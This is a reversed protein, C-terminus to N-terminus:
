QLFRRLVVPVKGPKWSSSGPSFTDGTPCKWTVMSTKKIHWQDLKGTRWPSKTGLNTGSNLERTWNNSFSKPWACLVEKVGYRFGAQEVRFCVVVMNSTLFEIVYMLFLVFRSDQWMMSQQELWVGWFIYITRRTVRSQVKIRIVDASGMPIFLCTWVGATAWSSGIERTHFAPPKLLCANCIAKLVRLEVYAWSLTQVTFCSCVASISQPVTPLAWPCM